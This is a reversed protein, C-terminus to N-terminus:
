SCRVVWRRRGGKAAMEVAWLLAQTPADGPVWSEGQPNTKPAIEKLEAKAQAKPQAHQRGPGGHPSEADVGVAKRGETEPSNGCGDSANETQHTKSM